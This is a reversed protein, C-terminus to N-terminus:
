QQSLSNSDKTLLAQNKPYINQSVVNTPESADMGMYNYIAVSVKYWPSPNTDLLDALIWDTGVASLIVLRGSQTFLSLASCIIFLTQQSSFPWMSCCLSGLSFRRQAELVCFAFYKYPMQYKGEDDDIFSTTLLTRRLQNRWGKPNSDQRHHILAFRTSSRESSEFAGRRPISVEMHLSSHRSAPVAM